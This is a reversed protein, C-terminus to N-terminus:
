DEGSDGDERLGLAALWRRKPQVESDGETQSPKDAVESSINSIQNEMKSRERALKAREVSFELESKRVKDEWEGQLKKLREVEEQVLENSDLIEKKVASLAMDVGGQKLKEVLEAIERDKEAIVEDTMRITGQLSAREARRAETPESEAAEEDLQAILRAKQAQWDFGGAAAAEAEVQPSTIRLQNLEERLDASEQKYQRVDEVSREFRQQLEVLEEQLDDGGIPGTQQELQAIREVLRDCESRAAILDASEQDNVEPRLALEERLDANERKIKQVDALALDFKQQLPELEDLSHAAERLEAVQSKATELSEVLKERKAESSGLDGNLELEKAELAEVLDLLTENETQLTDREARLEILSSEAEALTQSTQECTECAAGALAEYQERQLLLQQDLKKIRQELEATTTSETREGEQRAEIESQLTEITKADLEAQENRIALQADFSEQLTAISCEFEALKAEYEATAAALQAASDEKSKADESAKAEYSAIFEEVRRNVEQDVEELQRAYDQLGRDTQERIARLKAAISASRESSLNPNDQTDEM